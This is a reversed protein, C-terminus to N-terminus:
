KEEFKWVQFYVNIKIYKKQTFYTTKHYSYNLSVRENQFHIIAETKLAVIVVPFIKETSDKLDRKLHYEFQKTKLSDLINKLTFFYSLSQFPCIERARPMKTCRQPM